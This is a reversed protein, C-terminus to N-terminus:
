LQAPNNSLNKRNKRKNVYVSVMVITAILLIFPSYQELLETGNAASEKNEAKKTPQNISDINLNKFAIARDTNNTLLLVLKSVNEDKNNNSIREILTGDTDQVEATVEKKSIKATVKYWMNEKIVGSTNLFTTGKGIPPNIKTVEYSDM